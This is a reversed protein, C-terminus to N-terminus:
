APAQDEMSIQSQIYNQLGASNILSQQTELWDVHEEESRLIESFLDRSAFDKAEEATEVCEKLLELAEYEVKLDSEIVEQVNQGISIRNLKQVNPLGELFLIRKILQDAHKMEDISAEYEIKGLRFMGWDELIRAHLFYQNIATLEGTLVANLADIVKQNGKM